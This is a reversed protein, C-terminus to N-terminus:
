LGHSETFSESAEPGAEDICQVAVKVAHRFNTVSLFDLTGFRGRLFAEIHRPNYERRDIGLADLSELITREYPAPRPAEAAPEPKPDAPQTGFIEEFDDPDLEEEAQFTLHDFEEGLKRRREDLRFTEEEITRFQEDFYKARNEFESYRREDDTQAM